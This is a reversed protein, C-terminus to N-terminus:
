NREGNEAQGRKVWECIATTVWPIGGGRRAFRRAKDALTLYGAYHMIVLDWEEIWYIV